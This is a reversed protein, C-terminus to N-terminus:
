YSWLLCKRSVVNGAPNVALCEVTQTHGKCNFLPKMKEGDVEWIIVRQDMSASAFMQNKGPNM